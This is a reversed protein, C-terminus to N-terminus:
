FCSDSKVLLSFVVCFLVEEDKIQFDKKTMEPGRARLIAVQFTQFNWFRTKPLPGLFDNSRFSDLLSLIRLVTSSSFTMSQPSKCSASSPYRDNVFELSSFTLRDGWNQPWKLRNPLKNFHAEQLFFLLFVSAPSQFLSLHFFFVFSLFSKLILILRVRLFVISLPFSSLFNTHLFLFMFCFGLKVYSSLFIILPVHLFLFPSLLFYFYFLSLFVISQNSRQFSSM